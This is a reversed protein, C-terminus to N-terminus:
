DCFDKRDFENIRKNTVTIKISDGFPIVEGKVNVTIPEIKVDCNSQEAMPMICERYFKSRNKTVGFTKCAHKKTVSKIHAFVHQLAKAESGFDKIRLTSVFIM